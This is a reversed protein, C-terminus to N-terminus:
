DRNSWLLKSKYETCAADLSPPSPPRLEGRQCMDWLHNVRPQCDRERALRPYDDKNEEVSTGDLYAIWTEINWTPIFVAVREDPRPTEVGSSQCAQALSDTRKRPGQNDGDIMVVLAAAVRSCNTRHATLEVPFRERVFQEGSGRGPPAIEERLRRTPWGAKKLFRRVFVAHQLDECLVVIQVRRSM